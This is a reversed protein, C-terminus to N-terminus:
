LSYQPDLVIPSVNTQNLCDDTKKQLEEDVALEQEKIEGIRKAAAPDGFGVSQVVGNELVEPQKYFAPDGEAKSIEKIARKSREIQKAFVDPTRRVCDFVKEGFNAEPCVKALKGSQVVARLLGMEARFKEIKSSSKTDESKSDIYDKIKEESSM